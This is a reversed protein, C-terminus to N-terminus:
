KGLGPLGLNGMVDKMENAAIEQSKKLAKNMAKVLEQKSTGNEKVDVCEQKGNIIVTYQGEDAEIHINGLKEQIDKAKKQLAMLEKMQDMM